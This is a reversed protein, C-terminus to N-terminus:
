IAQIQRDKESKSQRPKQNKRKAMEKSRTPEPVTYQLEMSSSTGPSRIFHLSNLRGKRGEQEKRGANGRKAMSAKTQCGGKESYM